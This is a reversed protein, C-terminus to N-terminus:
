RAKIALQTQELNFVKQRVMEMEQMQNAVLHHNDARCDCFVIKMELLTTATRNYSRMMCLNQNSHM